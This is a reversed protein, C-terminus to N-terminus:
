DELKEIYDDETIPTVIKEIWDIKSKLERVMEILEDLKDNM